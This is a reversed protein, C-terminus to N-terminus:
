KYYDESSSQGDDFYDDDDKGIDLYMVYTGLMHLMVQFQWYLKSKQPQKFAKDKLFM